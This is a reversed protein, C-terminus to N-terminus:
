FADTNGRMMSILTQLCISIDLWMSAKQIYFQDYMLRHKMKLPSRTEGRCGCAQALGTIGPKVQYRHPYNPLSFWFEADLQIPHPRPGVISMHGVLVNLFQPMEDLNTRRLFRGIPTVRADDKLAQTFPGKSASWRMTRFKYCTFHRGNLGSRTQMFIAPGRSTLMIVIGVLPILWSLLFVTVLGAVVLDFVRKGGYDIRRILIPHKIRAKIHHPDLANSVM